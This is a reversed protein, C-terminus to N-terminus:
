LFLHYNILCKGLIDYIVNREVRLGHVGHMTIARNFSRHIACGEVYSGSVDGDMHFHIPYRGMRYAQGANYIEIHNFHARALHSDKKNSHVMIQVGFEDSGFPRGYNGEFCTQTAFQDPNYDEPCQELADKWNENESGRIVVNRSLLGVEAATEVTRGAITQTLAIHKYKLAPEIQITQGDNTVGTIRVLENERLSKSTSAIAIEGGVKWDPVAVSVHIESAGAEATQSLRTWTNMVHQGHLGLYGTRLSISKAGYVPLEKSTVNGHLTIIAKHEFPKEETGVMFSGNKAILIHEAQLHIDRTDDFIVTGGDVLLFFLVPTDM